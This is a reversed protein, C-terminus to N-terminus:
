HNHLKHSINKAHSIWMLLKVYMRAYIYMCMCRFTYM